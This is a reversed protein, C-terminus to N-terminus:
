TAREKKRVRRVKRKETDRKTSSGLLRGISTDTKNRKSSKKKYSNSIRFDAFYPDNKLVKEPTTYELDIKIRGREHVYESKRYKAPVIRAVFDKAEQPICKETMFKPFFGKRIFTNFFYHLDYYRNQMPTVNIKRTWDQQVKQNDVVGPICAFDFDWIKLRYGVNPVLYKKRVVTYEFNKNKKKIKHILVNNAKLDNHRFAPYKSQIVALASVVHFFFVKWHLPTFIRYNKRVYDLFDGRNAWESILISVDDYFVGKDAKDVFEKYKKNDSDIFDRDILDLFNDIETDFTCIPLVIHPTQGSIVLKSLVKIMKLEANEPRRVDYMDGYKRQKKYAVVKVGYDYKPNKQDGYVGHFTHGTTGSKIYYLTGGMKEIETTFDLTQKKLAHKTNNTKDSEDDSDQSIDILPMLSNNNKVLTRVFDIRCPISDMNNERRSHLTCISRINDSNRPM